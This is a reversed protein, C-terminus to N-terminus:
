KIGFDRIVEEKTANVIAGFARDFDSKKVYVKAGDTYTLMALGEDALIDYKDISVRRSM